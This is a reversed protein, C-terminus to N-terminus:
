YLQNERQVTLIEARNVIQHYINRTQVTKAALRPIKALRQWSVLVGFCKRWASWIRAFCLVLTAFRVNAFLSSELNVSHMKAFLLSYVTIERFLDSSGSGSGYLFSVSGFCQLLCIFFLVKVAFMYSYLTCKCCVYLLLCYM